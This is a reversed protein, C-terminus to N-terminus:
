ISRAVAKFRLRDAAYMLAQDRALGESLVTAARPQARALIELLCVGAHLRRPVHAFASLTHYARSALTEAEQLGGQELELRARLVDTEAVLVPRKDTLAISRAQTAYASAEAERGLAMTVYGLYLMLRPQWLRYGFREAQNLGKELVELALSQAGLQHWLVGLANQLWVVKSHREELAFLALAAELHDKAQLWEGMDSLLVGYNGIASAWARSGHDVMAVHREATRRAEGWYGLAAASDRLADHFTEAILLPTQEDLLGIGRQSLSYSRPYDSLRFALWATSAQLRLRLVPDELPHAAVLDVLKLADNLKGRLEFFRQLGLVAPAILHWLESKQAYRWAQQMNDAEKAMLVTFGHSGEHRSEATLRGLYHAAHNHAVQAVDEQRASAQEFAYRRLLPPLVYQDERLEILSREVLTSLQQVTAGTIQQASALDFSGDFVALQRVLKQLDTSLALVSRELHTRVTVGEATALFDLGESKCQVAVDSWSLRGIWRELLAIGLPLGGLQRLVENVYPLDDEQVPAALREGISAVLEISPYKARTERLGLTESEAPVALPYLRVIHEQSSLGLLTRAGCLLKLTKCSLLSKVVVRCAPVAYVDDLVILCPKDEIFDILDAATPPSALNMGLTIGLRMLVDAPQAREDLEALNMYYLDDRKGRVARATRLLKTLLATKGVGATGVLTILRTDEQELLDQLTALERQRGVLVAAEPLHAWTKTLRQRAGRARTEFLVTDPGYIEEATAQVQRAEAHRDAALLLLHLRFYQQPSPFSVHTGEDYPRRALSAAAAFRREHAFREAHKLHLNFFAQYFGERTNVIWESLEEGLTLRGSDDIQNLFHGQYWQQAEGLDDRELAEKFRDVDTQLPTFLQDHRAQILGPSVQKLRYLAESLNASQAAASKQAWFLEALKRRPTPGNFALYSLLLLPVPQKFTSDSLLLKGLTLLHM